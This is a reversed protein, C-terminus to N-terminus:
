IFEDSTALVSVRYREGSKDFIITYDGGVLKVWGKVSPITYKKDAGLYISFNKGVKPDSLLM